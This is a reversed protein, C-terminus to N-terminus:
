KIPKSKIDEIKPKDLNLWSNSFKMSIAGIIVSYLVFMLGLNLIIEDALFLQGIIVLLIATTIGKPVNLTMFLKERLTFNSNACSIEVSIYRIILLILFLAFSNIIFNFDFHLKIILGLLIFLVVRLFNAFLSSFKQLEFKERIPANAFMIALSTVALIGDGNFGETLVFTGLALAVLILPSINDENSYIIKLLNFAIFGILIGSFIGFAVQQIFSNVVDNTAVAGTYINFVILPIILTIPDNIVSEINLVDLVKHKAKILLSSLVEPSTGAMVASFVITIYISSFDKLNFFILQTFFTLILINLLLFIISLKVAIPSIDMLESLKLNSASDFVIVILAFITFGMLYNEPIFKDVSYGKLSLFIGALLLLLVDPLRLKQAILSITVGMFFLAAFWTLGPVFAIGM